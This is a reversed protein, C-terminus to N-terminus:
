RSEFTETTPMGEFDLWKRGDYDYLKCRSLIRRYERWSWRYNVIPEGLLEELREQASELRRMPIRMDFHHATHNMVTDPLMFHKTFEFDQRATCQIQAKWYSWEAHDRFWPIDPHTHNFYIVFGIQWQVILLPIVIAAILAGLWHMPDGAREGLAALWVAIGALAFAFAVVLAADTWDIIQLRRLYRKRPFLMRPLWIEALYYLGLGLGLDNRYLRQKTRGFASLSRYESESLPAWVFDRGRLNTFRHHEMHGRQWLSYTHFAPLLAIRGIVGNLWKSPTYSGHAADHGILFLRAGAFGLVLGAIGRVTPSMASLAILMAVVYVGCMVLFWLVPRVISVEYFSEMEDRVASLQARDVAQASATTVPLEGVDERTRSAAIAAEIDPSWHSDASITV